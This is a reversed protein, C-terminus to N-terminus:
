PFLDRISTNYMPFAAPLQATPEETVQLRQFVGLALAGLLAGILTTTALRRIM